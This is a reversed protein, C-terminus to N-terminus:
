RTFSQGAPARGPPEVAPTAAESGSLEKQTRLKLTTDALKQQLTQLTRRDLGSEEMEKLAQSMGSEIQQILINAERDKQNEGMEFEWGAATTQQQSQEKMAAVEASLQAVQLRNEANVQAVELRPDPPPNSMKELTAKWEADDYSFKDPDYHRSILFEKFWKKPDAGFRLDTVIQGMASIEQAQIDREVLATSGKAVICYDGKEEENEGWQLLWTYYRRIHPSTVRDDFTRAMRRLVATANNNLMTMGGVTEPAAGMQGQLLMPLGTTDEAFRMGLDILKLLEDIVMDVKITGIAKRVDDIVESDEAVYLIKRPSLGMKGDAPYVSGQKFVLMPGAAIGANDMLHRTAGVIIKQPTRIQRAVGIGTWHNARRRWVMVDYPFEGTDLPNLSAKIVRNNVMTMVAPIRDMEDMESCDCGAGELDYREVLGYYYWIEYKGRKVKDGTMGPEPAKKYEATAQQPGEQLCAAIQEPIYNPDDSLEMLQRTTLYDREWTYSGNHIDEGCAPDPYFNWPDVWKSCPQIEEIIQMAGDIYAVRRKQFPIPGKLIGTGMRAADEVQKRVQANFQCQSHWDAIRTEALNARYRAEAMEEEAAQIMALRAEEEPSLEPEAQEPQAPQPPPPAFPNAGTQSPPQTAPSAGQGEMVQQKMGDPMKGESMKILDPIPTPDLGWGRDDTPLLMDAIRASAADVFPGCINPFVTSYTTSKQRTAVRGPPKQRWTGKGDTMRNMEDIGEYYEEDELWIEEIGSSQRGNIADSRKKALSQGLADLKAWQMLTSDEGQEDKVSDDIVAAM